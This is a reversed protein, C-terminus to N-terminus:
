FNSFGLDLLAIDHSERIGIKKRFAARVELNATNAFNSHVLALRKEKIYEAYHERGAVLVKQDLDLGLVKLGRHERLLPGSHGGGGFTGDLMQASGDKNGIFERVITQVERHLVPYHEVGAVRLPETSFARRTHTLLTKVAM